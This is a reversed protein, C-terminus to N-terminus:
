YNGSILDEYSAGFTEEWNVEDAYKGLGAKAKRSALATHAMTIEHGKADRIEIITGPPLLEALKRDRASIRVSGKTDVIAQGQTDIVLKRYKGM